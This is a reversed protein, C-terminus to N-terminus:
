IAVLSSPVRCLPCLLPTRMQRSYHRAKQFDPGLRQKIVKRRCAKCYALHGCGQFVLTAREEFCCICETVEEEEKEEEPPPAQETQLQPVESLGPQSALVATNANGTGATPSCFAPVYPKNRCLYRKAGPPLLGRRRRARLRELEILAAGM